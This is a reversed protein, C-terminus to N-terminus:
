RSSDAWVKDNLPLHLRLLTETPSGASPDNSIVFRHIQDIPSIESSRKKQPAAGTIQRIGDTAMASRGLDFSQSFTHSLEVKKPKAALM